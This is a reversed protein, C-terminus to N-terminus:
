SRNNDAPLQICFTAGQGPESHVEVSGQHKLMAAHVFALGLGIGPQKQPARQFRDFLLPIDQASIGIGKDKICCILSSGNFQTTILVESQRDSYKIANSLLNIFVRELISGNGKVWFDDVVQQQIKIERSSAQDWVTDVANAIVEALNIDSFPINEDGEVRSLHVFDEALQITRNINSEIRDTLENQGHMLKSQELMALVSVLPSRLDHSLFGLMENRERQAEKIATIDSLNIIFGFIRSNSANLPSINVILDKNAQTRVQLNEYRKNMLVSSIISDWQENDVIKVKELIPLISKHLLLVDEKIGFFRAAQRNALTIVGLSNIVMVGDAMQELSQTIFNRLYALKEGVRQIDQVRSEIIEVTSRAEEQHSEILQRIYIKLVKTQQEDPALDLTWHVHVRYNNEDVAINRVFMRESLRQWEANGLNGAQQHNINGLRVIMDNNTMSYISIGDLPVLTQIFELPQDPSEAAFQQVQQSEKSLLELEANLYHVTFELRRWAWLPYALVLSVLAANIPMWVHLWHLAVLSGVFVSTIVSLVLLLSARPTLYSFLYVPVFVLVCVLLYLWVSPIQHILTEFQIAQIINANIEIGPMPQALGSVPTPLADGLGAATVGVLVIKDKLTGALVEDNLVNKYSITQFSGPPGVFPIMFHQKRQLSWQSNSSSDMEQGASSAIRMDAGLMEWMALGIHPWVAEGLGQYLYTGRAIGDADLEVHVHGLTAAALTLKPLPLTELLFGQLRSQELLVPLAVQANNKIAQYLLEDGEMDAMNAESFIVDFIIARVAHQSLKDILQAHVRRSWPWRGISNLSSEDIAVIVLDDSASHEFMSSQVDYILRDWRWTWDGYIISMSLCLLFIGLKIAQKRASYTKASTM